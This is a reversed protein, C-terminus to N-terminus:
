PYVYFPNFAYLLQIHTGIPTWKTWIGVVEGLIDNPDSPDTVHFGLQGNGKKNTTLTGIYQSKSQVVYAYSKAASWLQVTVDVGGRRSTKFTVYGWANAHIGDDATSLSKTAWFVSTKTAGFVNTSCALVMGMVALVILAKKMTKM